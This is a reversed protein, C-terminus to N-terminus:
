PVVGVAPIDYGVVAVGRAVANSAVIRIGDLAAGDIPRLREVEPMASKRLDKITEEHMYIVLPVNYRASRLKTAQRRIDYVLERMPDVFGTRDWQSQEELDRRIQDRELDGAGLKRKMWRWGGRVLLFTAIGCAANIIVFLEMVRAM